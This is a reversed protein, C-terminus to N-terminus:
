MHKLNFCWYILQKINYIEYQIYNEKITNWFSVNSGCHMVFFYISLIQQLECIRDIKHYKDKQNKEVAREKAIIATNINFANIAM